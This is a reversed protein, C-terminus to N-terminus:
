GGVIPSGEINAGEIGCTSEIELHMEHVEDAGSVRGWHGEVFYASCEAPIDRDLVGDSGPGTGQCIKEEYFM